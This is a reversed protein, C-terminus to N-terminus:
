KGAREQLQEVPKTAPKLVPVPPMPPIPKQLPVLPLVRSRKPM